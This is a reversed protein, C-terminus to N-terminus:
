DDVQISALKLHRYWSGQAQYLARNFGQWGDLAWLKFIYNKLFMSLSSILTMGMSTKKARNQGIKASLSSYRNMKEIADTWDHYCDHLITVPLHGLSAHQELLVREHVIDPSFKAVDRRFLRIHKKEFAAFRMKRGLFIMQRALTYADNKNAQMAQKIKQQARDNLYEDADLSLVWEHQCCKLARQKQLGFGPWDTEIVKAGLSKAIAVTDDDSGSDLILIEDAWLVSSICQAIHTAENKAIVIVSLM